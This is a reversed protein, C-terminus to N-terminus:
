FIRDNLDERISKEYYHWLRNPRYGGIYYDDGIQYPSVYNYLTKDQHINKQIGIKGHIFNFWEYRVSYQQTPDQIKSALGYVVDTTPNDDHCNLLINQKVFEWHKIILECLTYFEFARQSRRFYHLGNYVDPLLNQRNINRYPSYEVINDQYDRCHHSFILDHQQLHNWWWDINEPVIVDAELKITHTFPSLNFVKYENNLKWEIDNSDDTEMVIVHDFVDALVPTQKDTIVAVQNISCKSKINKCLEISLQMYDVTSNNQAIWLFGRTM